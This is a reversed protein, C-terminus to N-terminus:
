RGFIVYYIAVTFSKEVSFKAIGVLWINCAMPYRTTVPLLPWIYYMNHIGYTGDSHLPKEGLLAKISM